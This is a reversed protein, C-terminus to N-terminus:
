PYFCLLSQSAVHQNCIYTLATVKNFLNNIVTEDQNEAIETVWRSLGLDCAHTFVNVSPLSTIQRRTCKKNKHPNLNLHFWNCM